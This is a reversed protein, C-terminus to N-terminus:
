YHSYLDSYILLIYVYCTIVYRAEEILQTMFDPNRSTIFDVGVRPILVVLLAYKGKHGSDAAIVREVYPEILSLATDRGEAKALSDWLKLVHKAAERCRNRIDRLSHEWYSWIHTMLLPFTSAACTVPIKSPLLGVIDIFQKHDQQTALMPMQTSLLGM